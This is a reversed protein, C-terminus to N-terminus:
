ERAEVENQLAARLALRARHRRSKLTGVAVGEIEAAEELSLGHLDVLAFALRREPPLDALAADLRAHAEPEASPARPDAIAFAEVSTDAPRARRRLADTCRNRAIAYLWSALRGRGPEYDPLARYARLFVEQALDEADAGLGRSRILALIPRQYHEVVGRFADADGGLVQRILTDEDM